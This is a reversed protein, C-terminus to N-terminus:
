AEGASGRMHLLTLGRWCVRAYTIVNLRELLGACIDVVLKARGIM